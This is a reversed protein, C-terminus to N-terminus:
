AWDPTVGRCMVHRVTVIYAPYPYAARLSATVEKAREVDIVDAGFFHDFAPRGTGFRKRGNAKGVNVVYHDQVMSM